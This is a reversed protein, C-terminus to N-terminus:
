RRPEKPHAGGDAGLEAGRVTDVGEIRGLTPTEFFLVSLYELRDLEAYPRVRFGSGDKVVSGVRLGRPFIGGVGSTSVEDGPEITAEAAFYALRPLPGNDGAMVARVNGRGIHVPIRSNLDTLLLVQASQQGSAVIRGVLGRGGIVPYGPKVSNLAGVNVIASRVFPGGANAIVRSTVFAVDREKVVGSLESLEILRREAEIARWEWGKLKQNEDKLREVEDALEFLRTLTRGAGRVRELPASALSLVPAMVESVQWRVRRVGEHDLRSLVLLVASVFVLLVLALRFRRRVQVSRGRRM